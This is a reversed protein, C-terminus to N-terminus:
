RPTHVWVYYNRCHTCIQCHMIQLFKLLTLLKPITAILLILKMSPTIQNSSASASDSQSFKKYLANNISIWESRSYNTNSIRDRINTWQQLSINMWSNRLVRMCAHIMIVGEPMCHNHYYRWVLIIRDSKHMCHDHYCGWVHLPWSLVKMHAPIMIYCRRIPIMIVGGHM